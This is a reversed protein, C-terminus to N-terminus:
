SPDGDSCKVKKIFDIETRSHKTFYYKWVDRLIAAVNQLTLKKPPFLNPVRKMLYAAPRFWYCICPRYPERASNSQSQLYTTAISFLIQLISVIYVPRM